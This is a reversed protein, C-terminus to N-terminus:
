DSRALKLAPNFIGPKHNGVTLDSEAPDFGELELRVHHKGPKVPIVAPSTQGSDKGDILISAGPPKSNIVLKPGPTGQKGAWQQWFAAQGQPNKSLEQLKSLDPMSINPVPINPMAVTLDPAYEFEEGGAVKVTVSSTQFGPMRVSVRIAAADSKCSLQPGSAPPNEM